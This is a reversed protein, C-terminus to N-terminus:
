YSICVNDNIVCGPFVGVIILAGFLPPITKSSAIFVDDYLTVIFPCGYKPSVCTISTENPSLMSIVGTKISGFM